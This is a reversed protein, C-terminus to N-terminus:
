LGLGRGSMHMVTLYKLFQKILLILGHESITGVVTGFVLRIQYLEVCLLEEHAFGGATMCQTWGLLLGIVGDTAHSHSYLM